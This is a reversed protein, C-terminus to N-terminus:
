RGGQAAASDKRTQENIKGLMELAARSNIANIYDPAAGKSKADARMTLVANHLFADGACLNLVRLDLAENARGSPLHFVGDSRREEATLMEFYKQGYDVPFDCFGPKQPPVPNRRKQLNNYILNKYHNTNVEYLPKDGGVNAVRFRRFSVPVDEDLAEGKRRKVTQFGKSPFVGHWPSCFRYVAEVNTGDGSDVLVMKVPFQRGDSSQYTMRNSRWHEVLDHWAGSLPDNVDGPFVRYEISWTRYGLGHGCVEMELRPPKNPDKKWGQQVDVSATLYLVGDPVTGSKYSGRNESVVEPPVRIGREEYPLGLYLNVFSRMGDPKESADLYIAVLEEWSLMGVPSYLSSLHYSRVEDSYSKSTPRWEGGKLMQGKHHNEIEEHCHECVYWVRTIRGNAITWKM